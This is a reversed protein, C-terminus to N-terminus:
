NYITLYDNEGTANIDLSTGDTFYITISEYETERWNTSPEIRDITKGKFQEFDIENIM